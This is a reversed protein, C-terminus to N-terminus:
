WWFFPPQKINSNHKFYWTSISSMVSIIWAKVMYNATTYKNSNGMNQFFKYDAVTILRCNVNSARKTRHHNNDAPNVLIHSYMYIIFESWIVTCEENTEKWDELLIEFHWCVILLPICIMIWLAMVQWNIQLLNINVCLTCKKFTSVLTKM